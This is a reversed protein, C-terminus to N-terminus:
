KSTTSPSAGDLDFHWPSDLKGSKEAQIALAEMLAAYFRKPVRPMPDLYNQITRLLCLVADSDTADVDLTFRGDDIVGRFIIRDGDRDNCMEKSKKEIIDSWEAFVDADAGRLQSRIQDLWFAGGESFALSPWFGIVVYHVNAQPVRMTREETSM